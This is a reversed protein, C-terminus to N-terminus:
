PRRASSDVDAISRRRNSITALLSDRCREMLKSFYASRRWFLGIQTSWTGAPPGLPVLGAGM